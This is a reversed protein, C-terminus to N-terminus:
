KASIVNVDANETLIDFGETIVTDGVAIGDTVITRNEKESGTTVPVIKAKGDIVKYVVKQGARELICSTPLSIVDSYEHLYLKIDAYMGACIGSDKEKLKFIVETTRSSEDIIPSVEDVFAPFAIGPYSEVSVEAKLGTKLSSYFREPVYAVIQLSSLDGIVAVKNETNVVTGTQVPSSLMTGDIPSTINYFSYKAGKVSPDIVAIIDGKRVKQGLKLPSSVVRGSVASYVELSNKVRINGNTNCFDYLNTKSARETKVAIVNRESESIESIQGNKNCSVFFVAFACFFMTIFIHVLSKLKNNM